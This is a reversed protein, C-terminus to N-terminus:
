PEYEIILKILEIKDPQLDFLKQLVPKIRRHTAAKKMAYARKQLTAENEIQEERTSWRLNDAKNNLPNSDIHDVEAKNDPNPIFAQAVLRHLMIILRGGDDMILSLQLYSGEKSGKVMLGTTKNYVRGFNSVQYKSCGAVDRWEENEIIPRIKPLKNGGYIKLLNKRIAKYDRNHLAAIEKLTYGSEYDLQFQRILEQSYKVTNKDRILGKERLDKAILFCDWRDLSLHKNLIQCAAYNTNNEWINIFFQTQEDTLVVIEKKPKM